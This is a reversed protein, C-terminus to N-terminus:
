DGDQPCLPSVPPLATVVIVAWVVQGSQRAAPSRCAILATTCCRWAVEMVSPVASHDRVRGVVLWGLPDPTLSDKVPSRGAATPGLRAFVRRARRDRPM